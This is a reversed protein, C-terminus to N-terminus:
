PYKVYVTKKKLQIKNEDYYQIVINDQCSQMDNIEVLVRAFGFREVGQHCMKITIEDMIIPRGPSSAVTSIGKLTWAEMPFNMLKVWISLVIPDRKKINVNLDGKQVIMAKNHIIWPDNKAVF